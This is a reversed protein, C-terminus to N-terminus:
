IVSAGGTLMLILQGVGGSLINAVLSANILRKFSLQGSKNFIVLTAIEFMIAFVGLAFIVMLGTVPLFMGTLTILLVSIFNVFVISGMWRRTRFGILFFIPLEVFLATLVLPAMFHNINGAYQSYHNFTSPKSYCYIRNGEMLTGKSSALRYGPVVHYGACEKSTLLTTLSNKYNCTILQEYSECFPKLYIEPYDMKAYVVSVKMLIVLCLIFIGTKIVTIHNM